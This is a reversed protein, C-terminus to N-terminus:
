LRTPAPYSILCVDAAQKGFGCVCLRRSQPLDSFVSKETRAFVRRAGNLFRTHLDQSRLPPVPNIIPMVQTTYSSLSGGGAICHVRGYVVVVAAVEAIVYAVAVVDDGGPGVDFDGSCGAKLQTRKCRTAEYIHAVVAVVVYGLGLPCARKNICM